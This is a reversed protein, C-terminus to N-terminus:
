IAKLRTLRTKLSTDLETEPTRIVVGGILSEDITEMLEVTKADTENQLMKILETRTPQPLKRASTINAALHGHGRLLAAEIDRLLLGSLRTQKHDALYAALIKAMHKPNQGRALQDPVYEAIRRRSQGGM